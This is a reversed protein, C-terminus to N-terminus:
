HRTVFRLMFADDFRTEGALTRFELSRDFVYGFEIASWANDSDRSEFGLLVQLDRYTMVDNANDPFEIDWTGGGLRGALYVRNSDTLSYDIRPRPFVMDIRLDPMAQPRWSFGMVPLIKIDDRSLYDVGFVIDFEPTYHLMGVAHGPYRIGERASDEFDSFVGITSALDYSMADQIRGRKQYGFSFDYLRAPLAVSDPGSLLHLNFGTIFGSKYGSKKYPAYQFSLWGFQDGGGPMFSIDDEDTRYNSYPECAFYSLPPLQFEGLELNPDQEMEAGTEEPSLSIRSTDERYIRPDDVAGEISVLKGLKRIKPFDSPVQSTQPFQPAQPFQSAQFD